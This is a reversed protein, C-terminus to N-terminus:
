QRTGPECAASQHNVHRRERLMFDAVKPKLFERLLRVELKRLEGLLATLAAFSSNVSAWDWVM